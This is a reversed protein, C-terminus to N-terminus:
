ILIKDADEMNILLLHNFSFVKKQHVALSAVQIWYFSNWCLLFHDELVMATHGQVSSNLVLMKLNYFVQNSLRVDFNVTKIREALGWKKFCNRVQLQHPKKNITTAVNVVLIFFAPCHQHM